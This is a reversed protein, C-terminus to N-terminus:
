KATDSSSEIQSRILALSAKIAKASVADPLPVADNGITQLTNSFKAADAATLADRVTDMWTTATRKVFYMVHYGYETEVIGVDGPKRGEALCWSEFPEVMQGVPVQEYLGGNEVSGPDESFQTALAAFAEETHEGDLYQQLINQATQYANADTLTETDATIDITVDGANSRDLAAPTTPEEATPEEATDIPDTADTPDPDDLGAQMNRMQESLILVHRVSYHLIDAKHHLGETIYYVKYGSNVNGTLATAGPVANGNRVWVAFDNDYVDNLAVDTELTQSDDNLIDATENETGDRQAKDAEAAIQVFEAESKANTLRIAWDRADGLLSYVRYSLVGYAYIDEDYAANIEDENYSGTLASKTESLVKLYLQQSELISRFLDITMSKGYGDQLYAEATQSNSQAVSAVQNIQEEIQDRDDDNLEIGIAQALICGAKVMRLNEKVMFDIADAWTDEGETLGDIPGLLAEGNYPQADPPTNFDYNIEVGYYGSYSINQQIIYFTNMYYFQYEADTVDLAQADTQEFMDILDQSTYVAKVFYLVHYGDDAEIIGVDGPVRKGAVCWAEVPEQMAGREVNEYLGGNKATDADKSFKKALAAFADSTHDGDLYQQLVSQALKYAAKDKATEANVTSYVKVDSSNEMNLAGVTVDSQADASYEILINRVSYRDTTINKAIEALQPYKAPEVPSLTGSESTAADEKHFRPLVVKWALLAVAAVLAVIVAALVALRVGDGSKVAAGPKASEPLAAANEIDDETGSPEVAETLVDTPEADDEAAPAEATESPAAAIDSDDETGPPEVAEAVVDTPEAAVATPEIPAGCQPCRKADDDMAAGCIECYMFLRRERGCPRGITQTLRMAPCGAARPQMWKLM